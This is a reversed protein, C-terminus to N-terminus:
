GRPFLDPVWQIPSQTPRRAPRSPHLFDRGGGPNSGPGDLGYRTVASPYHLFTGNTKQTRESPLKLLLSDENAYITYLFNINFYV